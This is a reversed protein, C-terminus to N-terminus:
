DEAGTADKEPQGCRRRGIDHGTARRGIDRRHLALDSCPYRAVEESVGVDVEEEAAHLTLRLRVRDALNLAIQIGVRLGLSLEIGNSARRGIKTVAAIDGVGADM